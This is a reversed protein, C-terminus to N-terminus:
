TVPCIWPSGSGSGGRPELSVVSYVVERTRGSILYVCGALPVVGVDQQFASMWFDGVGDGDIDGASASREGFRGQAQPDPAEIRVAEYVTDPSAALGTSATVLGTACLFARYERM